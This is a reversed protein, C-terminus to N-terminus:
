HHGLSGDLEVVTTMCIYGAFVGCNDCMEMLIVGARMMHIVINCFFSSASFGYRVGRGVM